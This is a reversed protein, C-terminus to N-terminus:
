EKNTSGGGNSHSTGLLEYYEMTILIFKMFPNPQYSIKV